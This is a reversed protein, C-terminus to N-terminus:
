QDDQIQLIQVYLYLFLYEKPLETPFPPFLSLSPLLLTKREENGLLSFHSPHDMM